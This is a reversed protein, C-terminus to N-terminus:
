RGKLKQSKRFLDYKPYKDTPYKEIIKNCVTEYVDKGYEIILNIPRDKLYPELGEVAMDLTEFTKSPADNPHEKFHVCDFIGPMIYLEKM